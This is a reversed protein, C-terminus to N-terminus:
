MQSRTIWNTVAFILAAVVVISPGTPANTLTSAAIGGLGSATGILTAFAAMTEPTKALGRAAAAPIILLAGILMAGVIKLSVAVVAALALTLVLRERAPNIGVSAAIDPNLTATLIRSWRWFLLALVAVSVAWILALDTVTVTNINGFLLGELDIDARDVFSVVVLGLALASYSLVGLTADMSRHPAALYSALLGVGLAVLLTAAFAPLSFVLSLAVGLIAAHAITDGFYAMRRWVVFAGLSGTAFSLGVVALMARLIVDDLM